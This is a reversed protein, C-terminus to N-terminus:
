VDKSRLLDCGHDMLSFVIYKWCCLYSLVAWLIIVKPLESYIIFDPTAIPGIANRVANKLTSNSGILFSFHSYIDMHLSYPQM